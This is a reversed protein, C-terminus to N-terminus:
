EPPDKKITDVERKCFFMRITYLGRILKDRVTGSLPVTGKSLSLTFGKRRHFGGKDGGKPLSLVETTMKEEM